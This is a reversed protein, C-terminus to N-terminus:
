PSRRGIWRRLASWLGMKSAEQEPAGGPQPDASPGPEPRGAEAEDCLTHLGEIFGEYTYYGRRAAKSAEGSRRGAAITRAPRGPGPDAFAPHRVSDPDRSVEARIEVLARLVRDRQLGAEAEMFAITRDDGWAVGDTIGVELRSVLPRYRVVDPDAPHARVHIEFAEFDDRVRELPRLRYMTPQPYCFATLRRSWREKVDRPLPERVGDGPGYIWPEEEDGISYDWYGFQDRYEATTMDGELFFEGGPESECVSFSGEHWIVECGARPQLFFAFRAGPPFFPLHKYWSHDMVVHNAFRVTQEPTPLPLRSILDFYDIM